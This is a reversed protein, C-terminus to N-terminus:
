TVPLRFYPYKQQIDSIIVIAYGLPIAKPIDTSLGSVLYNIQVLNFAGPAKLHNCYHPVTSIGSSAHEKVTNTRTEYKIVEFNVESLRMYTPRLELDDRLRILSYIMCCVWNGYKMLM